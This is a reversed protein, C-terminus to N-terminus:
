LERPNFRAPAEPAPAYEPHPWFYYLGIRFHNIPQRLNDPLDDADTVLGRTQELTSYDYHAGYELKGWSKWADTLRIGFTLHLIHYNESRRRHGGDTNEIIGSYVRQWGGGLVLQARRRYINVPAEEIKIRVPVELSNQYWDSLGFYQPIAGYEGFRRSFASFFQKSWILGSELSVGRALPYQGMVGLTYKINSRLSIFSDAQTVEIRSGPAMFNVGGHVGGALYRLSQGSGWLPLCCFMLCWIHPRILTRFTM